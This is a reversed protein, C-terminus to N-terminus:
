QKDLALKKGRPSDLPLMNPMKCKPCAKYRSTMRWVSYIFGPLLFCLWLAVELFFSGKTFSKAQGLYECNSCIFKKAM